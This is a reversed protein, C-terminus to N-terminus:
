IYNHGDEHKNSMLGLLLNDKTFEGGQITKFSIHKKNPIEIQDKIEQILHLDKTHTPM